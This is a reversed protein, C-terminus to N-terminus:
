LLPPTLLTSDSISTAIPTSSSSLAVFPLSILPHDLEVELDTLHADDVINSELPLSSECDDYLSAKLRLFPLDPDTDHLLGSESMEIVFHEHRNNIIEIMANLRDYAEDFVNYYPCSNVKYDFTLLLFM